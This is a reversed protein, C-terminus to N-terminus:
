AFDREALKVVADAGYLEAFRSGPAYAQEVYDEFCSFFSASLDILM